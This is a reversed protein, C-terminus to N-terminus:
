DALEIKEVTIGYIALLRVQEAFSSDGTMLIGAVAGGIHTMAIHQDKAIADFLTTANDSSLTVRFASM